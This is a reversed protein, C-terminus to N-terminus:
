QKGSYLGQLDSESLATGYLRFNDIDGVFNGMWTNADHATQGAGGITFGSTNAFTLPGRPTGNNTAQLTSFLSGDIYAKVESNTEDYTFALHHWEGNLVKPMRNVGVYEFWQDLIYLKGAASDVTSQGADEFEFFLQENTWSYGNANLAFAFNTGAGAAQPTKKIWFAITFSTVSAFDNAAAYQIFTADTGKYAMGSIGEEYSVDGNDLGFNAKISDVNTGDMAVYFKLPGGPPNTDKPYDGLPPHEIKQCGALIIIASLFNALQKIKQKYNM